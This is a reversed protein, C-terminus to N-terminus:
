RGDGILTFPAWFIPHAYSFAVKRTNPDVYGPGDILSLMSARFADARTLKPDAVQHRFITTTLARASGTEVPWNTVLLARAGAYFFARGLGSVAEAGAGSAAATNCASLVVWDADLKLGFIKQMTLLGDGDIAAVVPASLALAPQSLGDLDGPVLGHTAFMVVRRDGLNMTRVQVENARVGLFVDQTADANLALAVERIEIATDPLRPLAALNASLMAETGLAARLHLGRAELARVQSEASERQAEEAQQPSFWPDGFGVYERRKSNGPPLARLSILAAVTPVQTLAMERALFPITRYNSFLPGDGEKPQPVPRTVLLSFPLQALPGSPVVVLRRGGKWGAEVPGLMYGLLQYALAVDFPPIDGLTSLKPDLSRRLDTVMQAMKEQGLPITAFAVNGNKSIAWVNTDQVGVHIAILAEDPLLVSQAQAISGPAPNILNDYAPFRKALELALAEQALRLREVDARLAILAQANQQQVPLTLAGSLVGLRATLEQQSDQERRALDALEANPLSARAVSAAVARSTVTVRMADAVVFAEEMDPGKNTGTEPGVLIRLYSELVYMQFDRGPTGQEVAQEGARSGRLLAPFISRFITIASARDGSLALGVAVFGRALAAEYSNEGYARVRHEALPRAIALGDVIRRTNYLAMIRPFKVYPSIETRGHGLDSYLALAEVWRGQMAIADAEWNLGNEASMGLVKRIENAAAFVVEADRSRGQIFLVQALNDASAAASPSGRGFYRLAYLLAERAVVEAEVFRGQALLNRSLGAGLVSVRRHISGIDTRLDSWSSPTSYSAAYGGYNAIARRQWKEAEVYHGLGMELFFHAEANNAAAVGAEASRLLPLTRDSEDVLQKATVLDGQDAAMETLLRAASLMAGEQRNNRSVEYAERWAVYGNGEVWWQCVGLTILAGALVQPAERAYRVSERAHALAHNGLGLNLAANARTRFTSARTEPSSSSPNVNMRELLATHFADDPKQHELIESIDAIKRPPPVFRTDGLDVIIKKADDVSMPPPAAQCGALLLLVALMAIVWYRM